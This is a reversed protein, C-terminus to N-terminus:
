DCMVDLRVIHLQGPFKTSTPYKEFEM